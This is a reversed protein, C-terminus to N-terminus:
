PLPVPLVSAFWPRVLGDSSVGWGHRVGGKAMSRWSAPGLKGHWEPDTVLPGSGIEPDGPVVPDERDTVDREDLVMRQRLQGLGGQLHALVGRFLDAPQHLSLRRHSEAVAVLADHGGDPVSGRDDLERAPYADVAREGPQGPEHQV